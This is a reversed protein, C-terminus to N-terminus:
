ILLFPSCRRPGGDGLCRPQKESKGLTAGSSIGIDSDPGTAVNVRHGPAMALWSAYPNHWSVRSNKDIGSVVILNRLAQDEPASPDGFRSPWGDLRNRVDASGLYQNHSATVLVAGLADLEKLVRM